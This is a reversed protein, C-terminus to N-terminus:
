VFDWVSLQIVYLANISLPCSHSPVMCFRSIALGSTEEVEGRDLWYATLNKVCFNLPEIRKCLKYGLPYLSGLKPFGEKQVVSLRRPSNNLNLAVEESWGASFSKKINM